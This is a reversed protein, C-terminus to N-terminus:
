KIYYALDKPLMNEYLEMKTSERRFPSDHSGSFSKKCFDLTIRSINTISDKTEVVKDPEELVSELCNAVQESVTINNEPFLRVPDVPPQIPNNVKKFPIFSIPQLHKLPKGRKKWEEVAGLFTDDPCNLISDTSINKKVM